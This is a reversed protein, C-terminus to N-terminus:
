QIKLVHKMPYLSTVLFYEKEEIKEWQGNRFNPKVFLYPLDMRVEEQPKLEFHHPREPNGIKYYFDYDPINSWGSTSAGIDLIDIDASESSDNKLSVTVWMLKLIMGPFPETEDEDLRYLYRIEDNEMFRAGETRLKVNKKWQFWERAETVETQVQPIKQNMRYVQIGWIALLIVVFAIGMIKLVEKKNKKM